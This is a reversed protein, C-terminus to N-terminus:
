GIQLINPHLTQTSLLPSIKDDFQVVTYIFLATGLINNVGYFFFNNPEM